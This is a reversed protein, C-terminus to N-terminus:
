AAQRLWLTHLDEEALHLDCDREVSIAIFNNIAEYYETNVFIRYKSVVAKLKSKVEDPNAPNSEIHEIVGQIREVVKEAEKLLTTTGEEEEVPEFYAQGDESEGYFRSQEEPHDAPKDILPPFADRKDWSNAAQGATAVAPAMRGGFFRGWPGIWKKCYAIAMIMVYLSLTGLAIFAVEPASVNHFM